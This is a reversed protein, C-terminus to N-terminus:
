PKTGTYMCCIGLTLTKYSTNTFGARDMINVFGQRDPFANASNNLYVYAEKNQGFAAAIQPSIKSMYLNYLSRVLPAAPRSFELVVLPAGPQLVRLMEKLGQELREFNRVGFAVMAGDFTADPFNITESDGTVLEIHQQLGAAQIKQRGKQLMHVSIDIGTIKQPRLRKWAMLAMDGTGTAVDLLHHPKYPALHRIAKRRWTTDIGLSLFRNLFDYRHAIGDFMRAVQAKKNENDNFPKIHDHPLPTM